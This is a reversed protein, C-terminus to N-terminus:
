AIYIPTGVPVEDYLAIVDPIAMRICGHSAASGLSGIADTGHIGAGDYIGLWRAKIPNNAAGGPVVQGALDGAWASNPVSWAPNVAKNQIHYMGAPTDYGVAGVAITYSSVLRLRRYLRLQFGARDAVLLTPYRAALEGRTVKPKIVDAPATVTRSAGPSALAREIGRRLAAARVEVGPREQVEALTPFDLRADKAPRDVTRRVRAVLGAVARRDYLVRAAVDSREEGGTVDRLVREVMTGGRSRALAAAVMADVDPRVDADAASLTFRQGRYRVVVPQRLRPAVRREVLRRAGDARLGGVEVGAVSVGEAIM